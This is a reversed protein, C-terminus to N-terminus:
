NRPRDSLPQRLMPLKHAHLALAMCIWFLPLTSAGFSDSIQNSAIYAIVSFSASKSLIQGDIDAGKSRPSFISGFAAWLCLGIQTSVLALGPIGLTRFYDLFVNHSHPVNYANTYQGAGVGGVPHDLGDEISSAYIVDRVQISQVEGGQAARTLISHARPNVVELVSFGAVSGSCAVVMVIIAIHPQRRFLDRTSLISVITLLTAVAGVVLNTKSGSMALGAFLVVCGIFGIVLSNRKTAVYGIFLPLSMSLAIGLQNAQKFLGATRDRGEDFLLANLAPIYGGGIAILASILAAWVFVNRTKFSLAPRSFVAFYGLVVIGFLQGYVVRFVRFPNEAWLFSILAYAVIIGTVAVLATRLKSSRNGTEDNNPRGSLAVLALMGTAIMNLNVDGISLLAPAWLMMVLLYM